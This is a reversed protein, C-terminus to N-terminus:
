GGANVTSAGSKVATGCVDKDGQRVVSLNNAKVTSSGSGLKPNSKCGDGYPIITAGQVAIPVGDVFVTPALNGVILNGTKDQGVRAVAPM